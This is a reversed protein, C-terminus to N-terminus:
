LSYVTSGIEYGAPPTPLESSIDTWFVTDPETTKEFKVKIKDKYTDGCGVVTGKTGFKVNENLNLCSYVVDNENYGGPIHTYHQEDLWDESKSNVQIKKEKANRAIISLRYGKWKQVKKAGDETLYVHSCPGCYDVDCVRCGRMYSAKEM